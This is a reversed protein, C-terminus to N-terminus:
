AFSPRTGGELRTLRDNMVVREDDLRRLITSHEALTGTVGRDLLSLEDKTALTDMKADMEILKMVVRDLTSENDTVKDDLNSVKSDLTTVRSDLTTVKSDLTTVKSDLTSVKADLTSVKSDLTTVKSDLTGLAVLVKDMNETLKGVSKELSM